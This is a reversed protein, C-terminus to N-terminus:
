LAGGKQKRHLIITENLVHNCFHDILTTTYSSHIDEITVLIGDQQEDVSFSALEAYIDITNHVAEKQYLSSSFYVQKSM